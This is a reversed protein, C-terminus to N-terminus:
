RWYIRNYTITRPQNRAQEVAVERYANIRLKDLEYNRAASKENAVMDRKSQNERFVDDRKSKEEAIRVQEKHMALRDEYQKLKFLWRAREDAKIKEDMQKIFKFVEPQCKAMPNITNIIDGAKEAGNGNQEAAWLTKAKNLKIKCDADIKKQYIVELSDLCIFYCEKCVEPVLSLNYIAQDYKQQKVLADADRIIFDCQEKYHNIIRNKGEEVFAVVLPNKTNITKFAEIFSKNENTGVGKLNLTTNAFQTNTVADGIYLTVELQQAIMQPPGPIIDKTGVMVNATIIFRPNVQSGGMGNNTAIQNLKNQLAAKAEEPVDLETPIYTNLVIRGFDESKIQASSDFAFFFTILLHFIKKM